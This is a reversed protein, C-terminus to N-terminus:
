RGSRLLNTANEQHHNATRLAIIEEVTPGSDDDAWSSLDKYIVASGLSVKAPKQPIYRILGRDALEYVESLPFRNIIM